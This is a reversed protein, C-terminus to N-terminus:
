IYMFYANPSVNKAKLLSSINSMYTTNLINQSFPSKIIYNYCVSGQVNGKTLDSFNKYETLYIM